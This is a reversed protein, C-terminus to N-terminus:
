KSVCYGEKRCIMKDLRDVISLNEDSLKRAFLLEGLGNPTVSVKENAEFLDCHTENIMSPLGHWQARLSRVKNRPSWDEFLLNARINSKLPSNGLITHIYIEEPAFTYKLFKNLVHDSQNFELIYQCADRSLAWWTIGSYPELNRLHKRYDRRALGIKALMRSAFRLVPRTSPYRLTNLRLLPDGPADTKAMTIFEQGRNEEFFKEIYEKSRLPYESGSMLVFYDFDGPAFLAERMLLLIAEVGTFEAWHVTLRERTFYVNDGRLEAFQNIDIKADIHVFFASNESTLRQIAREILKPNKYAFFLYAIKM